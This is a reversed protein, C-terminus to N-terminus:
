SISKDDSMNYWPASYMIIKLHNIKLCLMWFQGLTKLNWDMNMTAWGYLLLCCSVTETGLYLRWYCFNKRQTIMMKFITIVKIKIIYLYQESFILFPWEYFHAAFFWFHTLFIKLYPVRSLSNKKFNAEVEFLSNVFFKVPFTSTTLLM